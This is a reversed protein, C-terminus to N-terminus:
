RRAGGEQLVAPPHSHRRSRKSGFTGDLNSQAPVPLHSPAPVRALLAAGVVVLAYALVQVALRWGHPLPQHFLAIGAAIPVGNTVLSAIGATVLADGRQFGSQLVLSGVAYGVILPAIAVLWIGGAGLLKTALDGVAFLLGACLGASAARSYPLRPLTVFLAAALSAGLWVAAMVASPTHDRPRLGILSIGLLCLGLVAPGTAARMRPTMRSPRGRAQLLALVAVGSAAVSQVLALPALRLATFYVLWSGIEAALGILWARTRV